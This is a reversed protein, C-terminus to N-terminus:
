QPREMRREVAELALRVQELFEWNYRGQHAAPKMDLEYFARAREVAERLLEKDRTKIAAARAEQLLRIIYEHKETLPVVQPVSAKRM